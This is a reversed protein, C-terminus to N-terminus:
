HLPFESVVYGHDWLTRIVPGSYAGGQLLVSKGDEQIQLGQLQSMGIQLGNFANLSSTVGHGRNRTLFEISNQNCYKVQMRTLLVPPEWSIAISSVIKPIDSEAAPEVVVQIVPQVYMVWRSTANAFAPSSPGFILTGNSLLPGLEREVTSTTLNRRTLPNPQFYRPVEPHALPYGAVLAQLLVLSYAALPLLSIM